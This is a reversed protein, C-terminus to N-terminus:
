AAPGKGPAAVGAKWEQLEGDHPTQLRLVTRTAGDVVLLPYAIPFSPTPLLAAPFSSPPHLWLASILSVFVPRQYRHTRTRM